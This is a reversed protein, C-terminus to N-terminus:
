PHSTVTVPAPTFSTSPLITEDFSIVSVEAFGTVSSFSVDKCDLTVRQRANGDFTLRIKQGQATTSLTLSPGGITITAKVDPPVDRLAISLSGTNTGVPDILITYTGTFPLDPTELFAPSGGVLTTPTVLPTGDPSL